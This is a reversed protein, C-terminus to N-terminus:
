PSGTLARLCCQLMKAHYPLSFMLPLDSPSTLAPRPPATRWRSLDNRLEIADLSDIGAQLLPADDPLDEGLVAEVAAAVASRARAWPGSDGSGGASTAADPLAPDAHFSGRILLLGPDSPFGPGSVSLPM